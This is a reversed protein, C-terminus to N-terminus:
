RGLIRKGKRQMGFKAKVNCPFHGGGGKSAVKLVVHAIPPADNCIGVKLTTMVM